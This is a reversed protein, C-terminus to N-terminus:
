YNWSDCIKFEKKFLTTIGVKGELPKELKKFIEVINEPTINKTFFVKPRESM